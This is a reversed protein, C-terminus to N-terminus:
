LLWVLLIDGRLLQESSYGHLFEWSLRIKQDHNAIHWEHTFGDKVKWVLKDVLQNGSLLEV